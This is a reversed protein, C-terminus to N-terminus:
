DRGFAVAHILGKGILTEAKEVTYAGAGIIPGHFRDHVKQPVMLIRNVGARDPESM